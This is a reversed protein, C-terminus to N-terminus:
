LPLEAAVDAAIDTEKGITTGDIWNNNGEVVIHNITCGSLLFGVLLLLTINLRKM